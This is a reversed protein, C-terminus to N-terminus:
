LIFLSTTILFESLRDTSAQSGTLSVIGILFDIHKIQVSATNDSNCVSSPTIINNYAREIRAIPSKQYKYLRVVGVQLAECRSLNALSGDEPGQRHIPYTYRCWCNCPDNPVLSRMTLAEYSSTNRLGLAVM